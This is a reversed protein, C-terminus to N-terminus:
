HGRILRCSLRPATGPAAEANVVDVVFKFLLSRHRCVGRRILSIPVVNSRTRQKIAEVEVAAAAMPWCRPDLLVARFPVTKSLFVASGCCFSLAMPWCRASGGLFNSVLLAIITVAGRVTTATASVAAVAALCFTHLAEDQLRDILVARFPVTKSLCRFWM